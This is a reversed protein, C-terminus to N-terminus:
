GLTLWTAEEIVNNAFLTALIEHISSPIALNPASPVIAVEVKTILITAFPKNPKVIRPEVLIPQVINPEVVSPKVICLKVVEFENEISFANIASIMEKKM